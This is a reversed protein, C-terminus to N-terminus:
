RGDMAEQRRVTPRGLQSSTRNLSVLPSATEGVGLWGVTRRLRDM